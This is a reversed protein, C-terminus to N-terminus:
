YRVFDKLHGPEKRQRVPRQEREVVRPQPTIQTEPPVVQPAQQPIKEPARVQREPVSHIQERHTSEIPPRSEMTIPTRSANTSRQQPVINEYRPPSQDRIVTEVRTPRIHVRNRRYTAGNQAQVIYTNEDTSKLVKGLIWREDQKHEFYVSQERQLRPLDRARKDHYKKVSKKRRERKECKDGKVLKWTPLLTRTQRGFMMQNPSMGTDQRLVNRQEM